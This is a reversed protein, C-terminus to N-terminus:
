RLVESLVRGECGNPPRVNLIFAITRALDVVESDGYKGPNIWSPGYMALPVNTDYSWPSGHTSAYTTPKAFLYWNPKNMIVIDGSIQQHWALTVQRALKTQPVLGQELQTRTFVAEVGPYSRLMEQAANEVEVRNLKRSEVLKYDVYLNPNWWATIYKGEGFKASLAANVADIMKDPDIRGADLRRSASYEPINMFGHDASLTILVNQLGIRRDLYDILEEFVRDLRIMQDQSQRSEPGFLHNVYDHSTWSIALIDPAGSPNNGLNEGEIAAKTFDLTLLDGFPTWMTRDYYAPSPEQADGSSAFPFRTGLGKYNVSWPRDDPASRAYANDSLLPKWSQKFYKDQPKNAYFAKWWAPYDSMYYDSTIFRGTAASHMYATGFQGALGISSRDKGAIAIVKSNGNAYHLEDGVTTVKMNFPSTGAHQPTPEDLYKYRADETSYLRKGSTKDIWDNGVVGHKYPHACSLLTAHGVSTYTTAHSYHNNGYWAGKDLWMNFGRSGYQDYYKVFQEQPFGDVVMFLVLKPLPKGGPGSTQGLAAETQALALAAAVAYLPLKGTKNMTEERIVTQDLEQGPEILV